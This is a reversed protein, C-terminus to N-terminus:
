VRLSLMEEAAISSEALLLHVDCVTMGFAGSQTRQVLTELPQGNDQLFPTLTNKDQSEQHRGIGM